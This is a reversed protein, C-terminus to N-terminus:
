AKQFCKLSGSVAFIGKEKLNRCIKEATHFDELVDSKNLYVRYEGTDAYKKLGKESIAIKIIDEPEVQETVEKKLFAAVKDPRHATDSIKKGLCDLGLVGIVMDTWVPIVPEWTEPVKLPQRKAGDAEILLIDGDDQLQDLIEESPGAIKGKEKELIATVTYGYRDLNSKIKERDGAEAYPKTHEYAMHTTTTIIVKKGDQRLEEALRFILSTKGGGGVVSIKKHKEPDIDLLKIFSTNEMM